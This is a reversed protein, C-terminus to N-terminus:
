RDELRTASSGGNGSDPTLRFQLVTRGRRDILRLQKGRQSYRVANELGQMFVGEISGRMCFRKTTKFNSFHIRSGRVDVSGSIINCSTNGSFSTMQNNFEIFATTNRTPRGFAAQLTWKGDELNPAKAFIAGASLLISLIVLSSKFTFNKM